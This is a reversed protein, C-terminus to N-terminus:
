YKVGCGYPQSFQTTVEKGTLLEDLAAAVYNKAGKITEPDPSPQDDIAGMYAVKGERDIVFMHPTTKADYAHGITGEPDLVTATRIAGQDAAIKNATAADVHGEKGAASSNIAVWIVGQDVYKKQLDQMNHAGYHKKVFPCDHNTWELVVIKGKYGELSIDQGNTDKAAITPAPQGVAPAALVPTTLACLAALGLLMKKM